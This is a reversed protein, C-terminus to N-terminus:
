RVLMLGLALNVLSAALILVLGADLRKLEEGLILGKVAEYLIAVAALAIMGGEFGASFYSIKGYGYPYKPDPPRASLLISAFAFSTAAIHVVSELADSLIARSGTLWYAGWKGALMVIGVALSLLAAARRRAFYQSEHSM